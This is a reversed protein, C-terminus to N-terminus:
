GRRRSSPFDHGRPEHVVVPEDVREVGLGEGGEAGGRAGAGVVVLVAVAADAVVVGESSYGVSEDADEVTAEFGTGEVVLCGGPAVTLVVGFGGCGSSV